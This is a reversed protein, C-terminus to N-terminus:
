KVIKENEFPVLNGSWVFIKVYDNEKFSIDLSEFLDLVSTGTVDDTILKELKGGSYHAIYLRAPGSLRSDAYAASVTNKGVTLKKSDDTYPQGNVLIYNKVVPILLSATKDGVEANVVVSMVKATDAIKLENGNLAVGEYTGSLSYTVGETLTEGDLSNASLTYTNEEGPLIELADGSCSLELTEGVDISSSWRDLAIVSTYSSEELTSIVVAFTANKVNEAKVTLKKYKSNSYQEEAPTLKMLQADMVSLKADCDSLLTVFVKSGKGDATLVASKGDESLTISQETHMFSYIESLAEEAKVEDQIVLTKYNDLMAFGRRTSAAEDYAATMDIVAYGSGKGVSYETIQSYADKVQDINEDPNIVLCNNGEARNRYYKTKNDYDKYSDRGLDCIWRVNDIDYVFTGIDLQSHSIGNRGGKFALYSDMVECGNRMVFSETDGSFYRYNPMYDKLNGYGDTDYLLISLYDGGISKSQQYQYAGFAPNDFYESLRYYAGTRVNSPYYSDAFSFIGRPGTMVVPFYGTLAMKEGDLLGCNTKCIASLVAEYPLFTSMAYHWYAVGENHAGNEDINRMGYVLSSNVRDLIENCLEAYQEADCIALAGMGAGSLLAQNWNGYGAGAWRAGTRIYPLMPAIGCSVIANRIFTQETKTWYNYMWDYTMAVARLTDGVSLFSESRPDWSVNKMLSTNYLSNWIWEKVSDDPELNYLLAAESLQAANSSTVATMPGAAVYSLVNKKLVMFSKKLYEDNVIDTKLSTLKEDTLLIRPHNEKLINEAYNISDPRRREADPIFDSEGSIKTKPNKRLFVKSFFVYTNKEDMTLSGSEKQETTLSTEISAGTITGWTPSGGADLTGQQGIPLIVDKENGQWDTKFYTFFYNNTGAAGNSHFKLQYVRDTANQSSARLVIENYQSWDNTRPTPTWSTDSKNKFTIGVQKGNSSSYGASVAMDFVLIDMESVKMPTTVATSSGMEAECWLLVDTEPKELSTGTGYQRVTGNETEKYFWNATASYNKEEEGDPAFFIYGLKLSDGDIYINPNVIRPAISQEGIAVDDILANEFEVATIKQLAVTKREAIQRDGCVVSICGNKLVVALKEWEDTEFSIRFTEYDDGDYVRLTLAESGKVRATVSPNVAAAPASFLAKRGGTADLAKASSVVANGTVYSPTADTRDANFNYSNLTVAAEARVFSFGLLISVSLYLAIFKKISIFKKM